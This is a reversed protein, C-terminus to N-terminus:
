LWGGTQLELISPCVNRELSAADVAFTQTYTLSQKAYHETLSASASIGPDHVPFFHPHCSM